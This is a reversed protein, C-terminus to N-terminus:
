SFLIGRETFMERTPSSPGYSFCLHAKRPVMVASCPSIQTACPLTISHSVLSGDLHRVSRTCAVAEVPTAPPVGTVSSMSLMTNANGIRVM